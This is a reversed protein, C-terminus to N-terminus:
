VRENIQILEDRERTKYDGRAICAQDERDAGKRYPNRYWNIAGATNLPPLELPSLAM